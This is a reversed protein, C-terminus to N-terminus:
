FDHWSDELPLPLKVTFCTGKGTESSVVIRGGHGEVIDKAIALGLGASGPLSGNVNWQSFREFLHGLIEPAIGVGTDKVHILVSYETLESSITVNGGTPTYRLANAILNSFVWSLKVPDGSVEPIPQEVNSRLEVGNQEAQLAFTRLVSRVLNALDLPESHIAISGSEGRALALLDNALRDMTGIDENITSVLDQEKEDLKTRADQLLEAAAALSTLPTKLEHSLTAVLNARDRLYTIDQLVLVHGLSQGERPRLPVIKLLYKQAQGRVNSDIEIRPLSQDDPNRLATKIREYPTERIQLQDFPQGLADERNVRLIAAAVENIHAISGYGDILIIGDEISELIAEIKNKEVILRDVNLKEFQELGEAMKNFEFAVVQLEALPQEVLRERHGPLNLTRLRGALESLPNAINRALTLSLMTGLSLLLILAVSFEYSVENSMMGARIDARFMAAENMKALKDLQGHLASFDEANDSPSAPHELDDLSRQWLKAISSVLDAEGEETINQREVGLWRLFAAKNAPMESKLTGETKALELEYLAEDMHHVSKISSYNSYLTARIAGGLRHVSPIAIAGFILAIALMSLTGNRIRKRLSPPSM